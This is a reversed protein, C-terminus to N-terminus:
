SVILGLASRANPSGADDLVVAQGAHRPLRPLRESM